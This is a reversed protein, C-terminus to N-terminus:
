QEVNTAVDKENDILSHAFVAFTTNKYPQVYLYAPISLIVFLNYPFILSSLGVLLSCLIDWGIFSLQLIFAKMKLGKMKNTSLKLLSTIKCSDDNVFIYMVLFYSYVKMILVVIGGIGSCVALINFIITAYGATQGLVLFIITAIVFLIIYGILAFTIILGIAYTRIFLKFSKFYHFICRVSVEEGSGIRYWYRNIGAILPLTLISVIFLFANLFKTYEPNLTNRNIMPILSPDLKFNTILSSYDVTLENLRGILVIALMILAVVMASKWKGALLEKARSKFVSM